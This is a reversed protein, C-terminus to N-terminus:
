LHQYWEFVPVFCTFLVLDPLSLWSFEIKKIKKLQPSSAKKDPLIEIIFIQTTRATTSIIGELCDFGNELFGARQYM